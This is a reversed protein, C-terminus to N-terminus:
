AATSDSNVLVVTMGDADSGDGIVKFPLSQEVIGRGAVSPSGGDYRAHATITVSDAGSTFALVIDFEDGAVYRNWETLDTFELDLTGEYMRLDAELPEAINQDGIFRRDDALGNDGSITAAKVNVASGGITVTGHNFKLPKINAPLSAAALALGITVSLSSGTATAAASIVVTTSNTVSVIYAGTPINPESISKGVDAATFAGTSSTVTTSTNTTAGDTVVRSGLQLKQGLVSIGFTAIEGASCALEWSAVKCGSATKPHVTGGVGPVGVQTTFSVGSLDGPSYIHMYPGTGITNVTGFCHKFLVGLGRNTLELGVDGSVTNNGGNWADSDLVRRGAYIGESELREKELEIGEDVLPLFLTPAKAVGVTSETVIGLQAALGSKLAM